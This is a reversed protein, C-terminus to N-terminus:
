DHQWALPRAWPQLVFGQGARGQRLFGALRSAAYSVGWVGFWHCVYAMSHSLSRTLEQVQCTSVGAHKPAAPLTHRDHPNPQCARPLWTCERCRREGLTFTSQEGWKCIRQNRSPLGNKAANLPLPVQLGLGMLGGSQHLVDGLAPGSEGKSWTLPQPTTEPQICLCVLEPTSHLM